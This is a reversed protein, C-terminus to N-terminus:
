QMIRLDRRRLVRIGSGRRILVCETLVAAYYSASM